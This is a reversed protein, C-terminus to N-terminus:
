AVLPGPGANSKKRKLKTKKGKIVIAGSRKQIVGSGKPVRADNPAYVDDNSSIRGAEPNYIGNAVATGFSGSATMDEVVIKLFARAFKCTSEIV